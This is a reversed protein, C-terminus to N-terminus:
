QNSSHRCCLYVSFSPQQTPPLNPMSSSTFAATVTNTTADHCKFFCHLCSTCHCHRATAYITTPLPLLLPPPLTVPPALSLSPAAITIARSSNLHKQLQCLSWLVTDRNHHHLIRCHHHNGTFAPSAACMAVLFPLPPPSQCCWFHSKAAATTTVAM